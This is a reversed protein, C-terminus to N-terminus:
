YAKFIKLFKPEYFQVTSLYTAKGQGGEIAGIESIEDNGLSDRSRKLSSHGDNSTDNQSDVSKIDSSSINSNFNNVVVDSNIGPINSPSIMNSFVIVPNVIPEYAVLHGANDKNTLIKTSFIKSM